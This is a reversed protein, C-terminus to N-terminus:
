KTLVEGEKLYIIGDELDEPVTAVKLLIILFESSEAWDSIAKTTKEDLSEANDVVMVKFEGAFAAGMTFFVKVSEAASWNAVKNSDTIGRVVGKHYLFNDEGIALGPVGLRMAALTKKRTERLAAIDGTLTEYDSTLEDIRKKKKKYEDYALAKKELDLWKTYQNELEDLDAQTYKKDDKIKGQACESVADITAKLKGIDEFTSFVCKEKIYRAAQELVEKVKEIYAVAAARKMKLEDVAPPHKQEKVPPGLEGQAKKDRGTETRAQEKAKIATDIEAITQTIGARDKLKEIIQTDTMDRM